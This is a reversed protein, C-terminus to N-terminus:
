DAIKYTVEEVPRRFSKPMPKGYGIRVLLLPQSKELKLSARIKDRVELVECPMNLHSSSVGLSTTTLAFREFSRGLEVWNKWETKESIFLVLSSSRVAMKEFKAKMSATSTLHRMVLSGLFRPVSPSGIASSYLGDKSKEAEQKNFRMWSILESVFSKDSYQAISAASIFEILKAIEEKGTFLKLAVGTRKASTKFKEIHSAPIEKQEYVGRNSQRNPIEKFLELDKKKTSKGLKVSIFNQSSDGVLRIKTEIGFANASIVLNELACGLSIYLAHDDSDVVALKRSFDPHIRIEDKKFEFKWPQTNHGSPAMIAYKVLEKLEVMVM